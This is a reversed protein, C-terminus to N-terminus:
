PRLCTIPVVDVGDPRRHAFSGTGTLVVLAAPPQEGRATLKARLRLLSAAAADEQDAGWKIEVGTWRGDEAQIIADVELGSDDHYHCVQARQAYVCLDRLCLTEFLLGLTKRDAMLRARTALMGAAALSPDVLMRKPSRLLRVPSRLAPEWAPIEKYVYLRRLVDLYDAVTKSAISADTVDRALTKVSVLTATNRALTAILASLRAPDRRIGDIRSADSNAVSELYTRPVEVAQSAPLGLSAPWGGVLMADIIDGSAMEGKVTAPPLGDMLQSLSVEGTSRGAEWLSMPWMTLRAIRGTGSHSTQSDIPTASGTLIYQGVGPAQDVALRVADWLGPADQWEDILVPKAGHLQSM